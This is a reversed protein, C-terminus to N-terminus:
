SGIMFEVVDGEQMVYDKGEVRIKGQEKAEKWGGSSIFDQYSVINAKIFKKTFDTHIVGAAIPAKTGKEITWARAELEGATLFSQLSLETYAEKILRNLGSEQIGLESMFEKQDGESLLAIESEIKASIIVVHEARGKFLDTFSPLTEKSSLQSESVNVCILELKESILGLMQAIKHEEETELVSCARKGRELELKLKSVINWKFSEDKSAAGKPEKQKELIALDSLLIETQITDYDSIPDSGSNLVDSDEFGRIVHCILNTERINALFQNGLGEGKSAGKVLGAIDVFKVTAPVIKTTHVLRALVDLREDPVPVIGINPEITAFPYNAVFAQQKKLLANFLTSKGVNPLGVIGISLNM